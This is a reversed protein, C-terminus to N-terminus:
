VLIEVKSSGLPRWHRENERFQAVTEMKAKKPASFTYM